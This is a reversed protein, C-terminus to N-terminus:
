FLYLCEINTTRYKRHNYDVVSQLVQLPKFFQLKARKCTRSHTLQLLNLEYIMM